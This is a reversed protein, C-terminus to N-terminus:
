DLFVPQKHVPIKKPRKIIKLAMTLWKIVKFVNFFCINTPKGRSVGGPIQALGLAPIVIDECNSERKNFGIKKWLISM